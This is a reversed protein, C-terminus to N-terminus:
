AAMGRYEQKSAAPILVWLTYIGLATGFPISLLALCGLVIAVSRAWSRRELLGWGALIGLLALVAGLGGLAVIMPGVFPPVHAEHRWWPPGVTGFILMAGTPILHLISYALWLIGLTKLHSAVRTHQGAPLAQASAFSRGCSPCFNQGERVETGAVTM